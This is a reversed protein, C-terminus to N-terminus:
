ADNAEGARRNPRELRDVKLALRNTENAFDHARRRLSEIERAHDTEVRTIHAALERVRGELITNIQLAIEGFSKNINAFQTRSEKSTEENAKQVERISVKLDTKLASQSKAVIGWVAALMVVFELALALVQYTTFM